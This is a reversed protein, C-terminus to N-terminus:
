WQTLPSDPMLFAMADVGFAGQGSQCGGTTATRRIAADIWRFSHRGLIINFHHYPQIFLTESCPMNPLSSSAVSVMGDNPGAQGQLISGSIRLFGNATKESTASPRAGSKLGWDTGAATFYRVQQGAAISDVQARFGSVHATTLFKMAGEIDIPLSPIQNLLNSGPGIAFDALESGLHPSSLTFVNRVLHPIGPSDSQGIIAAQIDLGGKSHAIVDVQSVGFQRTIWQIQGALTKGNTWMDSGPTREDNANLTVFATRYGRSYAYAYMDNAGVDEFMTPGWWDSAIGGMGHVFVLVPKSESGAPVAGVFINKEMEVPDPPPTVVQAVAGGAIATLGAAITIAVLMVRVWM